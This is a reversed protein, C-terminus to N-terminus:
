SDRRVLLLFCNPSAAYADSILKFKVGGKEQVAFTTVYNLLSFDMTGALLKPTSQASAQILEPKVTLGEAKFFGRQIAIFLPAADPVPLTGVTIHTKEPGSGSSSAKAGGCATLGLTAVLPVVLFRIIRGFTM